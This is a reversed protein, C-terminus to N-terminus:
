LSPENAHPLPRQSLKDPNTKLFDNQTIEIIKYGNRPASNGINTTITGIINQNKPCRQNYDDYIIRKLYM